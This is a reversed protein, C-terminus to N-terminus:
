YCDTDSSSAVSVCFNFTVPILDDVPLSEIIHNIVVDIIYYIIGSCVQAHVVFLNRLLWRSCDNDAIM